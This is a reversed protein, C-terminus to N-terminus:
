GRQRAGNEINAQRLRAAIERTMEQLLTIKLVPNRETLDVFWQRPVVLCRVQDQAIVDASRPSGDLFAMEGVTMGSTLVDVRKRNQAEDRIQVEANGSLIVMMETAPEGASIMTQGPEYVRPALEQRIMALDEANCHQFLVCQDLAMPGLSRWTAGTVELLLADECAELAADETDYIASAAIGAETLSAKWRGTQCLVLRVGTQILKSRLESLLRLSVADAMVVAHMDLILHL